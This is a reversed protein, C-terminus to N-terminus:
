QPLNARRSLLPQVFPKIDDLTLGEIYVPTETFKLKLSHDAVPYKQSVGFIDTVRVEQTSGPIRLSEIAQGRRQWAILIPQGSKQAAYVYADAGGGITYTGLWRSQRLQHTLFAYAVVAPKPTEDARILGFNHEPNDPEWGDNMFDYWFIKEAGKALQVVMMRVLWQAQVLETTPTYFHTPTKPTLKFSSFGVEGHWLKWPLRHERVFRFFEPYLDLSPQEEPLFRNRHMNYVHPSILDISDAVGLDYFHRYYMIIDGDEWLIKATPDETKIVRTITKGYEALVKQWPGGSWDGGFVPGFSNQPENILDYYDIESGYKRAFKRHFEIAPGFDWKGNKDKKLWGPDRFSTFCPMYCLHNEKAVPFAADEPRAECDRIWGLGARKVIRGIRAPWGQNFHTNVGFPSEPEKKDLFPNEPIVGYRGECMRTHTGNSMKLVVYYFGLEGPLVLAATFSNKLSLKIGSIEKVLTRQANVIKGTVTIELNGPPVPVKLEASVNDAPYFLNGPVRTEFSLSASKWYHEVRAEQIESASLPSEAQLDDILVTGKAEPGPKEIGVMLWRFPQHVRGDNKGGWFHGSKEPVTFVVKQWVNTKEVPKQQQHIQGTVDALRLSITMPKDAYVLFGVEQVQGPLFGEYYWGVYSGGKSFDYEIKLSGPGEHGDRAWSFNGQGGPFESGLTHSYGPQAQGFEELKVKEAFLTVSTLFFLFGVPFKM